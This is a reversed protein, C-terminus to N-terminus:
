RVVFSFSPWVEQHTKKGQFHLLYSQIWFSAAHAPAKELSMFNCTESLALRHKKKSTDWNEPYFNKVPKKAKTIVHTISILVLFYNTSSQVLFTQNPFNPSVNLSTKPKELSQDPTILFLNHTLRSTWYHDEPLAHKIKVNREQFWSSWRLIKAFM